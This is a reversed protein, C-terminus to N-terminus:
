QIVGHGERRDDGLAKQEQLDISHAGGFFLNELPWVKMEKQITAPLEYGEEINMKSETEFMRPLEIAEELSLGLKCKNIFIQALTFPIRMSGGSGTALILENNQDFAFSPTMMSNLRVNPTWSNLGNPMLGPEGLMNNMQMDTGPIFYGSGVGISTSLSIANGDRDVINFHSTGGPLRGSYADGLNPNLEKLREYLKTPNSTYPHAEAFAGRLASFHEKTLPDFNQKEIESLFLHMLGGGMSPLLPTSIQYGHFDFIYPKRIEVQYQKFDEYSLFGFNEQVYNSVMQGIEGVYFWNAKERAFSELFDAYQDLRFVDGEKLIAGDKKFLVEGRPYQLLIKSLMKTDVAQFSNYVVGNTGFEQAPKVLERLPISCHHKALYQVMAMAGPVAMSAPGTFFREVSEGFNIDIEHYNPHSLTNSLPTQCFFDLIFNEGEKTYINAFGGAGASAMVPETVACALYAAVAADFANGGSELITQAVETTKSHGSAIAYKKPAHEM